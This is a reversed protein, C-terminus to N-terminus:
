LGYIRLERPSIDGSSFCGLVADVYRKMRQINSFLSAFHGGNFSDGKEFNRPLFVDLTEQFLVSNERLSGDLYNAEGAIESSNLRM